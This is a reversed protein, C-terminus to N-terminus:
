ICSGPGPTVYVSRTKDDESSVSYFKTIVTISRPYCITNDRLKEPADIVRILKNYKMCIQLKGTYQTRMQVPKHKYTFQLSLTNGM